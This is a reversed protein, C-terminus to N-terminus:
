FVFLFFVRCVVNALCMVSFGKNLHFGEMSHQSTKVCGKRHGAWLM